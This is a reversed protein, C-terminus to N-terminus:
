VRLLKLKPFAARYIGEDLTLLVYRRHYAHAGILFDALIRRPLGTKQKRRRKAYESFARGAAKWIQKEMMWDVTITTEGLFDELFKETRGPFAMLEAYVTGSIVLGGRLFAGDLANRVAQNLEDNDQWLGALINTDIATTM